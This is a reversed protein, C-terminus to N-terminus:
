CSEGIWLSTISVPLLAINLVFLVFSIVVMHLLGDYSVDLMIFFLPCPAVHCVLMGPLGFRFPLIAALVVCTLLFVISSTSM